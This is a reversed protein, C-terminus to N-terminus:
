RAWFHVNCVPQFNNLNPGPLTEEPANEHRMRLWSGAMDPGFSTHSKVGEMVLSGDREFVRGVGGEIVRIVVSKLIM